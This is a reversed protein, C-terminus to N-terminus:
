PGFWHRNWARGHLLSCKVKMYGGPDPYLVGDDVKARMLFLRRISGNAYQLYPYGYCPLSASYTALFRELDGGDEPLPTAQNHNTVIGEATVSLEVHAPMGKTAPVRLEHLQEEEIAWRCSRMLASLGAPPAAGHDAEAFGAQRVDDTAAAQRVPQAM